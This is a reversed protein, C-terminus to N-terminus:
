EVDWQQKSVKPDVSHMNILPLANMDVMNATNSLRRVSKQTESTSWVCQFVASSILYLASNAMELWSPTLTTISATLM